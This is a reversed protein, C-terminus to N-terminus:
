ADCAWGLDIGRVLMATARSTREQCLADALNSRFCPHRQTEAKSVLNLFNLQRACVITASASSPLLGAAGRRRGCGAIQRSSTRRWGGGAGPQVHILFDCICCSRAGTWCGHKCGGSHRCAVSRVHRRGLAVDRLILPHTLVTPPFRGFQGHFRGNAM